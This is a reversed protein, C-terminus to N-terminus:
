QLRFFLQSVLRKGPFRILVFEYLDCSSARFKATLLGSTAQSWTTELTTDCSSSVSIIWTARCRNCVHHLKQYHHWYSCLKHCRHLLTFDAMVVTSSTCERYTHLILVWLLRLSLRMLSGDAGNGPTTSTVAVEQLPKVTLWTYWDSIISWLIMQSKLEQDHARALVPLRLPKSLIKLKVNWMPHRVRESEPAQARSGVCSTFM